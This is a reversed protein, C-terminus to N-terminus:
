SKRNYRSKYSKSEFEREIVDSAEDDKLSDLEEETEQVRQAQEVPESKELEAVVEEVTNFGKKVGEVQYKETESPFIIRKGNYVVQNNEVEVGLSDALEQLKTTYLDYGEEEMEAKAPAPVPSTRERRIPSPADPETLPKETTDPKVDPTVPATEPGGIPAKDFVFEENTKKGIFQNYKKIM